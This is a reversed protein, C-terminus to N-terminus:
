IRGEADTTYVAAPLSQVLERYHRERQQLSQNAQTLDATRQKVRADLEANAQRLAAEAQKRQVVEQELAQNAEALARASRSLHAFVAVKSRLIQPNVPKT